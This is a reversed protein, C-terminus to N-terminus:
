SCARRWFTFTTRVAGLFIAGAIIERNRPQNLIVPHFALVSDSFRISFLIDARSM